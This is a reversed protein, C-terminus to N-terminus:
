TITSSSFRLSIRWECEVSAVPQKLQIAVWFFTLNTMNEKNCCISQHIPEFATGESSERSLSRHFLVPWARKTTSIVLVPINTLVFKPHAASKKKEKM